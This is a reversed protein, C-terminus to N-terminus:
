FSNAQVTKWAGWGRDGQTRGSASRYDDSAECRSCVLGMGALCRVDGWNGGARLKGEVALRDCFVSFSQFVSSVGSCGPLNDDVLSGQVAQFIIM